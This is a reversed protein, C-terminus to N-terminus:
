WPHMELKFHWGVGQQGAHACAHACASGQMCGCACMCKRARMRVRVGPGCKGVQVAPGAEARHRQIRVKGGAHEDEGRQKQM